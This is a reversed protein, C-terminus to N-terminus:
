ILALSPKPNRRELLSHDTCSNGFINAACCAAAASLEESSLSESELEESESESESELEDSESESESELESELLLSEESESESVDLEPSLMGGQKVLCEQYADSVGEPPVQITTESEESEDYSLRMSGKGINLYKEQSWTPDKLTKTQGRVALRLWPSVLVISDIVIVTGRTSM